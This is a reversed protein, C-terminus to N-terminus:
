FDGTLSARLLHETDLTPLSFTSSSYPKRAPDSIGLDFVGYEMRFKTAPNIAYDASFYLNHHYNNHEKTFNSAILHPLDVQRSLTYDAFFDWKKSDHFEMSLGAHNISDDIGGAFHYGNQAAHLTLDWCECPSYILREKFVNFYDYPPVGKLAGQGYLFTSLRDILLGDVRDNPAKSFDTLLGRPFDPIANTREAIAEATWRSNLLYQFGLSYIFQDANQDAPVAANLITFNSLDVDDKPFYLDTLVPEVGPTTGPVGRWRFLGKATLRESVKYTVEDRVVTEVYATNDQKHVNRLDLLNEFREKFRKEKWQARVVIRNRDVGDGIRFPELSSRDQFTLHNGWFSDDRTDLYRSLPAEFQRDMQTYSLKWETKDQVDHEFKTELSAKYAFGETTTRFRQQSLLEHQRQSFAV